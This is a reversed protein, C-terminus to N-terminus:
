NRDRFEASLSGEKSLSPPHNSYERFLWILLPIAAVRVVGTAGRAV